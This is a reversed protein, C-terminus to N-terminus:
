AYGFAPTGLVVIVLSLMAFVNNGHQRHDQFPWSLVRFWFQLTVLAFWWWSEVIRNGPPANARRAFAAEGLRARREFDNEERAM